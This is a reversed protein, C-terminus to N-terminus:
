KIRENILDCGEEVNFGRWNKIKHVFKVTKYGSPSTITIKKIYKKGCVPCKM